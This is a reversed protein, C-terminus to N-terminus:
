RSKVRFEARRNEERCAETAAACTPREKGYSVTSIREPVVGYLSLYDKVAKARRDGLAVNYESTGREDCHGEILVATDHLDKLWAAHGVLVDAADARIVAKDFDFRVATLDQVAAFEEQSARKAPTATEQDAAPPVMAVAVDKAPEPEQRSQVPIPPTPIPMTPAPKPEARTLLLGVAPQSGRVTGFMRDGGESVKLDATFLRGDHQHRMTVWGQGIEAVLRIGNLGQFRVVEPVSEAATAGELVLRGLGRDGRQVLDVTVSDERASNFIGTGTWTGRWRGTLDPGSPEAISASPSPSPTMTSCAAILPILLLLLVRM